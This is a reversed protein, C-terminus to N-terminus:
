EEEVVTTVQDTGPLYIGIVRSEPQLYKQAAEMIMEPTVQSLRDVYQTYWEYDAFINSYGMWFAQNTINESGYAFLARAQKVARELEPPKILNDQLRHIQDNVVQIVDDPSRDPHVIFHLTYLYPDITAQLNGHASVTIETEVLAQYLRSTKNSIGGAGFMNLGSPGTFLSDLITLSFFDASITKPSRYAMQIFKTEGPGKLIVKKAKQLTPDLTIEPSLQPKSPLGAFYMQVLKFMENTSFDGCISIIANAPHYHTQYHDFLEDRSITNLDAMEGGIDYRYPHNGFSAKSVAEGLLFFPNNESGERESIVVTRELEVEKQSFESNIMRDSELDLAIEFVYSPLTEYYTTWDLYTFANWNGGLRSIMKDLVSPPFKPTGKFQMHEVWHSLGTKGPHENRLGVKYWIWGSIIPATHMEKLQITLGNSLQHTSYGELKKKIM